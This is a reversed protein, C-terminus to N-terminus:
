KHEKEILKLKAILQFKLKKDIKYARSYLYEENADDREKFLYEFHKLEEYTMQIKDDLMFQLIEIAGMIKSEILGDSTIEIIEHQCPYYRNNCKNYDVIYTPADKLDLIISPKCCKCDCPKCITCGDLFQQHLKGCVICTVNNLDGSRQIHVCQTTGFHTNNISQNIKETTYIKEMYNCMSFM